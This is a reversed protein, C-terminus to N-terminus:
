HKLQNAAQKLLEESINPTESFDEDEGFEDFIKDQLVSIWGIYRNITDKFEIKDTDKLIYDLTFPIGSSIYVGYPDRDVFIAFTNNENENLWDMVINEVYEQHLGYRFYTYIGFYGTEEDIIFDYQRVQKANIISEINYCGNYYKVKHLFGTEDLFSIIMEMLAKIYNRKDKLFKKESKYDYKPLTEVMPDKEKRAKRIADKRYQISYGGNIKTFYIKASLEERIKKDKEYDVLSYIKDCQIKLFIQIVTYAVLLLVTMVSFSILANTTDFLMELSKEFAGYKNINSIILMIVIVVVWLIRHLGSHFRSMVSCKYDDSFDGVILRYTNEISRPLECFSYNNKVQRRVKYSDASFKQPKTEIACQKGLCIFHPLKEKRKEMIAERDHWVTGDSYVRKIIREGVKEEYDFVDLSIKMKSYCRPCYKGNIELATQTYNLMYSHSWKRVNCIYWYVAVLIGYIIYQVTEFTQPLEGKNIILLTSCSLLPIIILSIFMKFVCVFISIHAIKNLM